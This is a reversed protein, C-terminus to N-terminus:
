DLTGVGYRELIGIWARSELLDLLARNLPERLASGPPLAVAIGAPEFALRRIRVPPGSGRAWDLSAADALIAEIEGAALAAFAAEIGAYGTPRVGMRALTEGAASAELVGVRLQRLEGLATAPTALRESTLSAAIHGTILAVLVMAVFMWVSALIRGLPTIPVKDGYGVTTMTVLAWWFAGLVGGRRVNGFADPNARREAAWVMLGFGFVLVAMTGVAALFERSAIVGRIAVLDTGAREPTAVALSTLFYPHSFDVRREREATIGIAGIAADLTGAALGDLAGEIDAPSVTYSWGGARAVADWVELSVGQWGGEAAPMVFPPAAVIAVRLPRLEPAEQATAPLAAALAVALAPAALAARVGGGTM